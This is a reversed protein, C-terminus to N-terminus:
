KAEEEPVVYLATESGRVGMGPIHQGVDALKLMGVCRKLHPPLTDSSWINVAGHKDKVIYESGRLLVVYGDEYNEMIEHTDLYEQYHDPFQELASLGAGNAKAFESFADYNARVYQLIQKNISNATFQFQNRKQGAAVHVASHAAKEGENLLETATKGGFNKIITKFAKDVNGTMTIYGRQRTASLRPCDFGFVDGGDKYAIEIRGLQEGGEYVDFTHALWPVNSRMARRIAVIKWKPRAKALRIILPAMSPHLETARQPEDKREQVLVNPMGIPTYNYELENIM